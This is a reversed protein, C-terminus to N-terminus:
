MGGTMVQFDVAVDAKQSPLCTRENTLSLLLIPRQTKAACWMKLPELEKRHRHILVNFFNEEKRNDTCTCTKLAM